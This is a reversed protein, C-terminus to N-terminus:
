TLHGGRSGLREMLRPFVTLIRDMTWLVVGKKAGIALNEATTLSSFIRRGQPIHSMGMRAIRYAPLRSIDQGKFFVRGRRPPSFGCVSRMLTTKGAGNRGLVAVVKGEEVSLSVGQLIHSDGYYTHIDQVQLVNM